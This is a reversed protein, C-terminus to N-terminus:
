DFEHFKLEFIMVCVVLRILEWSLLNQCSNKLSKSSTAHEIKGKRWLESTKWSNCTQYVCYTKSPHRSFIGMAFELKIIIKRATQVKLPFCLFAVSLIMFLKDLMFFKNFELYKEKKRKQYNHCVIGMKRIDNKDHSHFPKEISINSLILPQVYTTFL